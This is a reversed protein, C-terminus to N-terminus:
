GVKEIGPVRSLSHQHPNEPSKGLLPNSGWWGCALATLKAAVGRQLPRASWCPRHWPTSPRPFNGAPLGHRRWMTLRLAPVQQPLSATSACQVRRSAGGPHPPRALSRGAQGQTEAIERPACSTNGPCRGWRPGLGAAPALPWRKQHRHSCFGTCVGTALRPWRPPKSHNFLLAAKEIGDLAPPM